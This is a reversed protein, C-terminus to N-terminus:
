HSRAPADNERGTQAGLMELLSSSLPSFRASLDVVLGSCAMVGTWADGCLFVWEAADTASTFEAVVRVGNQWCEAFFKQGDGAVGKDSTVSSSSQAPAQAENGGSGPGRESACLTVNEGVTYPSVWSEEIPACSTMSEHADWKIVLQNAGTWLHPHNIRALTGRVGAPIHWYAAWRETVEFRTGAPFEAVLRAHESCFNCCNPDIEETKM